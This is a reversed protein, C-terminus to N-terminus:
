FKVGIMVDGRRFTKADQVQPNVFGHRRADDAMAAVPKGVQEHEKVVLRPEVPVLRFLLLGREPQDNPFRRRKVVVAIGVAGPVMGPHDGAAVGNGMGGGFVPQRQVPQQEELRFFQDDMVQLQDVVFQPFLTALVAIHQLAEDREPQVFQCAGVAVALRLDRIVEQRRFREDPLVEVLRQGQRGNGPDGRQRHRPEHDHELLEVPFRRDVKEDAGPQLPRRLQQFVVLQGDFLDRLLDAKGVLQIEGALELGGVALRGPLEPLLAGGM